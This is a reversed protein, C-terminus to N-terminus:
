GYFLIWHHFHFGFRHFFWGYQLRNITTVTTFGSGLRIYLLTQILLWRVCGGLSIYIFTLSFFFESSLFIHRIHTHTFSGSFFKRSFAFNRLNSFKKNELHYIKEAFFCVFLCVNFHLAKKHHHHHHHYISRINLRNKKVNPGTENMVCFFCCWWSYKIEITQQNKTIIKM